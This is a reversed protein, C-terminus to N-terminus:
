PTARHEFESWPTLLCHKMEKDTSGAALLGNCTQNFVAPAVEISCGAVSSEKRARSAALVPASDALYYTDAGLLSAPLETLRAIAVPAFDAMLLWGALILWSRLAHRRYWLSATVILAALVWTVQTLAPTEAAFGYDGGPVFWRWPGGVAAPVFGVRLM